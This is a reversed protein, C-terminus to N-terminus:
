IKMAQVPAFLFDSFIKAQNNRAYPFRVVEAFKEFNLMPEGEPQPTAHLDFLVGKILSARDFHESYQRDRSAENEDFWFKAAVFEDKTVLGKGGMSMKAENLKNVTPLPSNSLTIYTLFQRWNVLGTNETDINRTIGM